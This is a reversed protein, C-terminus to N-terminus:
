PINKKFKKLINKGTMMSEKLFIGKRPFRKEVEECFEQFIEEEKKWFERMNALPFYIRIDKAFEM